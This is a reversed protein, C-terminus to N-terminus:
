PKCGLLGSRLLDSTQRRLMVYSLALFGGLLAYSSAEPVAALSVSNILKNGQDDQGYAVFQFEKSFDFAAISGSGQSVGGISWSWEAGGSGDNEIRLVVVNNISLPLSGSDLTTAETIGEKLNFAGSDTNVGFGYTETGNTGGVFPDYGSYSSLDTDTSILGFSLQSAGGLSTQYSSVTLEFGGTSQFSNESYVLARLQYNTGSTNFQLNGNDSWSHGSITKNVLGGGIGGFGESAVNTALTDNGFGDQYILTEARLLLLLVM